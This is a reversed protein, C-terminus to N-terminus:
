QVSNLYATNGFAAVGNLIVALALAQDAGTPNTLPITFGVLYLGIAGPQYIQEVVPVGVNSVGVIVALNVTQGPTGVANTKAAPTVQGLGTAVLYYTQGRKAPNTASLYNGNSDLVQAYAKGGAGTSYYIGPQVELVSVGAVTTLGGNIQVVVTATSSGAVECPTQFTVQQTGNMNSVQSIPAQTGNVTLSLGALTYPLPGSSPPAITGSIGPALGSGTAVALGCPALGTQFSAANQFSAATLLPGPPVATLSFSVQFGEYTASVTIPGASSGATVLFSAQGQVNTVESVPNVTATGSVVSLTINAAAVPQGQADNVRVVLPLAFGTNVIATQNNGSVIQIYAAQANVVMTFTASASGSSATIVYQGPVPGATVMTSAHGQADTVAVPSSLTLGASAVFSVSAGAVPNGLVDLAQVVIPIPFTSGPPGAQQNGSVLYVYAVNTAPGQATSTLSFKASLANLSATVGIPGASAGATVLTSAMGQANTAASAPNLSAAGSAVSFRVTAGSVPSGQNDTVSVVLPASFSQNVPTTQNNGSVLQLNAATSFTQVVTVLTQSGPNGNLSFTLPVASGPAVNPVVVNFQYLGVFGPALGAYTVTAPVGAFYIQFSALANSGAVIEGAPIDPTV